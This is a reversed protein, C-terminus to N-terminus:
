LFSHVNIITDSHGYYKWKSKFLRYNCVKHQLWNYIEKVLHSFLFALYYKTPLIFLFLFHRRDAFAYYIVVFFFFILSNLVFWESIFLVHVTYFSYEFYWLSLCACVHTSVCMSMGHMCVRISMCEYVCVYMDLLFDPILISTWLSNPPM